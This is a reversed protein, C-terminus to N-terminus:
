LLKSDAPSSRYKRLTLLLFLNMRFYNPIHAVSCSMYAAPLEKAWIDQLNGRRGVIPFRPRFSVDFGTACVIADVEIIEGTGLEIGKTHVRVIGDTVVRVNSATLSELYGPGPTLRRCGATFTPIIAKMLMPNQKLAVAMDTTLAETLDQALGDNDV